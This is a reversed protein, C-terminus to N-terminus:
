SGAGSRCGCCPGPRCRPCPSSGTAASRSGPQARDRLGKMDKLRLEKGRYALTWYDGERRFTARAPSEPPTAVASPASGTRRGAARRADALLREADGALRTMGLDLAAGRVESLMEAAREADGREGRALLMRAFDSKSRITFPRAGMAINMAIAAEFHRTAAEFAGLQTALLGLARSVSGLCAAAPGLTANRGAHPLLLEYLVKARGVDELHACTEAARVLGALWSFDRPLETFRRDALREFHARASEIRGRDADIFGLVVDGIPM